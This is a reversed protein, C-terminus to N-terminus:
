LILFNMVQNFTVIKTRLQMHNVKFAVKHSVPVDTLDVSDAHVAGDNYGEPLVSSIGAPLGKIGTILYYNAQGKYGLTTLFDSDPEMQIAAVGLHDIDTEAAVKQIHENIAEETKKDLADIKYIVKQKTQEVLELKNDIFRVIRAVLPLYRSGHNPTGLMILKHVTANGGMQEVYWRSILGGMSHGVLNVKSSGTSALIQQVLTQLKKSNIRIDIIAASNNDGRGDFLFLNEDEIYGNSKFYKLHKKWASPRNGYGHLLILPYEPPLNRQALEGSVSRDKLMERFHGFKLKSFGAVTQLKEKLQMKVRGM